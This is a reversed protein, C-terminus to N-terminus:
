LFQTQTYYKGSVPQTVQRLLVAAMDDTIPLLPSYFPMPGAQIVVVSVSNLNRHTPSTNSSDIVASVMVVQCAAESWTVGARARM